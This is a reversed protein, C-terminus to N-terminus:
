GYQGMFFLFFCPFRLLTYEVQLGDVKSTPYSRSGVVVQRLLDNDYFRLCIGINQFGKRRLIPETPNSGVMTMESVQQVSLSARGEQRKWSPVRNPTLM